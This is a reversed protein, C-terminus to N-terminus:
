SGARTLISHLRKNLNLKLATKMLGLLAFECLLIVLEVPLTEFEGYCGDLRKVPLGFLSFFLRPKFDRPNIPALPKFGSHHFTIPWYTAFIDFSTM